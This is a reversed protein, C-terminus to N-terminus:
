MGTERIHQDYYRIWYEVESTTTPRKSSIFYDLSDQYRTETFTEKLWAFITTFM